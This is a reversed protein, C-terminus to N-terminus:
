SLPSHSPGVELEAEWESDTLGDTMDGALEFFEERTGDSLGEWSSSVDNDSLVLDHWVNAVLELDSSLKALTFDSSIKPTLLDSLPKALTLNSALFGFATDESLSTSSSFTSLSSVLSLGPERGDAVPLLIPGDGTVSEWFPNCGLETGAVNVFLDLGVGTGREQVTLRPPALSTTFTLWPLAVCPNKILPRLKSETGLEETFVTLSSLKTGFGTLGTGLGLHTALLLPSTAFSTSSGQLM